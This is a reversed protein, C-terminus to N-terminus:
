IVCHKALYPSPLSAPTAAQLINRDSSVNGTPQIEVAWVTSGQQGSAYCLGNFIPSVGPPNGTNFTDVINKYRTALDTTPMEVWSFAVDTTSGQRTIAWTDSAYQKCPYHTLLTKVQGSASSACDTPSNNTPTGTSSLLKGGFGLGALAGIAKNLDATVNLSLGSSASASSNFTGTATLGGLTGTVTLVAAAAVKKAKSKRPQMRPPNPVEWPRATEQNSTVALIGHLEGNCRCTCENKPADSKACTRSHWRPNYMHGGQGFSSCITRPTIMTATGSLQDVNAAPNTTVRSGKETMCHPM